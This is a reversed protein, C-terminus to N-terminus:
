VGIYRVCSMTRFYVFSGGYKLLIFVILGAFSLLVLLGLKSGFAYENGILVPFCQETDNAMLSIYIFTIVFVVDYKTFYWPTYYCSHNEGFVM